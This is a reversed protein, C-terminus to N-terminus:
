CALEAECTLLLLVVLTHVLLCCSACDFCCMPLTHLLVLVACCLVARCLVARCLVASANCWCLVACCRVLVFSRAHEVLAALHSFLLLFSQM